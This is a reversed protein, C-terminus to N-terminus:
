GRVGELVFVGSFSGSPAFIGIASRAGQNLFGHIKEFRLAPASSIHHAETFVTAAGPKNFRSVDIFGDLDSGNNIGTSVLAFLGAATDVIPSVAGNVEFFGHYRYDTAGVDWTAGNDRSSRLIAGGTMNAATMYYRIRLLNYASLDTWTVQTAGGAAVIVGGIQQWASGINSLAQAKQTPTFSQAADARVRLALADDISDLDDGISALATALGTISSVPQEGTQLSRDFADGGIGQPDYVTETMLGTTDIVANFTDTFSMISYSNFDENWVAFFVTNPNDVSPIRILSGYEMSITVDPGAREAMIGNAGYIRAPYRPLVRMRLTM